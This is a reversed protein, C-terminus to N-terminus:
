QANDESFRANEEQHSYEVAVSRPSDIRVVAAAGAGLATRVAGAVAAATTHGAVLLAFGTRSLGSITTSRVGPVMALTQSITAVQAWSSAGAIEVVVGEPLEAPLPWYRYLLPTLALTIKSATDVVLSAVAQDLSEGFGAAHVFLNALSGPSSRGAADLLRVMATGEVGAMASGRIRRERISVAVAVIARAGASTQSPIAKAKVRTAAAVIASDFSEDDIGPLRSEDNSDIPDLLLFGAPRLMTRLSEATARAVELGTAPEPNAISGPSATAATKDVAIAAVIVLGVQSSVGPKTALATAATGAPVLGISRLDELLMPITLSAAIQLELVGDLASESLVQSKALYRGAQRLIRKRLLDAKRGSPTVGVADKVAQEVLQRHADALARSRAQDVDGAVIPARGTAQYEKDALTLAPAPAGLLM